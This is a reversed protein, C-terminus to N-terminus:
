HPSKMLLPLAPAEITEVIVDQEEVRKTKTNYNLSFRVKPAPFSDDFTM